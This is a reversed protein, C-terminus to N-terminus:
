PCDEFYQAVAILIDSVTVQNTGDLDADPDNTFYKSVVYLIDSVRVTGDGQGPPFDACPSSIMQISRVVLPIEAQNDPNSPTDVLFSNSLDLPASGEQPGASVIITAILGSGTAGYPPPPLLSNCSAHGEGPGDPLNQDVYSQACAISRNTSELWDTHALASHGEIINTPYTFNVDFASAGTSNDVNKTWVFLETRTPDGQIMVKSSIPVLSTRSSSVLIETHSANVPASDRQVAVVAVVAAAVVVLAIRAFVLAARVAMKMM